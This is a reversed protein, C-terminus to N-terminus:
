QKVPNKLKNQNYKKLAGYYDKLKFYQMADKDDAIMAKLNFEDFKVIPMNEGKQVAVIHGEDFSAPSESLFTYAAIPGSIVKFFWCSDAAVGNLMKGTYADMRSISLTEGPYVKIKRNPDSKPLDKNEYEVYFKKTSEDILIKSKVKKVSGDGGTIVYDFKPNYNNYTSTSLLNLSMARNLMSNMFQNNMAREVARVDQAVSFNISALIAGALFLTKLRSIM